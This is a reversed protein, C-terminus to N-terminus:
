LRKKYIYKEDIITYYEYLERVIKKVNGYKSVVVVVLYSVLSFHLWSMSHTESMM